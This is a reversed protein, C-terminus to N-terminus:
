LCQQLCNEISGGTNNASEYDWFESGSACYSLLLTHAMQIYLHPPTFLLVLTKTLLNTKMLQPNNYWKIM